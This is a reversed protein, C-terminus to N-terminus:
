DNLQRATPVAKEMLAWVADADLKVAAIFGSKTVIGCTPGDDNLVAIQDVEIRVTGGSTKMLELFWRDGIRKLM